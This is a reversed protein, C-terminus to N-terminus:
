SYLGANYGSPPSYTMASAGFNVTSTDGNFHLGMAAYLTGSLSSFATGQSVNDKLFILTGADMDLAVGITHANTWAEGYASGSNNTFKQGSNGYYSWGNVDLGVATELSASANAVGPTGQGATNSITIEWYWKGSSKGITSRVSRWANATTKTLILNGGSLTLQSGIDAPNWTAYTVAAVTSLGNWTKWSASALGNYSKVNARALGNWTKVTAM